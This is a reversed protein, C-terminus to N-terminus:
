VSGGMFYHIVPTIMAVSYLQAAFDAGSIVNNYFKKGSGAKSSAEDWSKGSPYASYPGGDRNKATKLSAEMSEEMKSVPVGVEQALAAGSEYFKMIQGSYHKCHWAIEDAAAMNLALRFPPKNKWMEGTM